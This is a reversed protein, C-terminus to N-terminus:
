SVVSKGQPKKYIHFVIYCGLVYAIRLDRIYEVEDKPIIDDFSVQFKSQTSPYNKIKM